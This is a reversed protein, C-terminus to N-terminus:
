MASEESMFITSATLSFKPLSIFLLNAIILGIALGIVGAIVDHLPMKNLQGEVWVSFRQLKDAFFPAFVYGIGAGIAVGLTVFVVNALTLKYIGMEMQLVQTSLLTTLVPNAFHMIVGGIVAMIATVFFRIVKVLM